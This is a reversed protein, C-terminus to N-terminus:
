REEGRGSLASLLSPRTAVTLEGSHQLRFGESEAAITFATLCEAGHCEVACCNTRKLFSTDGDRFVSLEAGEIDVKLYDIRPFQFEDMLSQISRAPVVLDDDAAAPQTQTSCHSIRGSGATTRRISLTGERSWVGALLLYCRDSYPQLNRRAVEFNEPDPEIAIVRANPYRNLFFVSAFGANAGADVVYEVPGRCGVAYQENILVQRFMNFDSTGRRLSLPSRINYLRLQFQEVAATGADDYNSLVECLQSPIVRGLIRVLEAPKKRALYSAVRGARWVKNPIWHKLLRKM